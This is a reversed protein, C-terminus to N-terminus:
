AQRSSWINNNIKKWRFYFLFIFRWLKRIRFLVLNKMKTWRVLYYWQQTKTVFVTITVIWLKPIILLELLFLMKMIILSWTKKQSFHMFISFVHIQKNGIFARSLIPPIQCSSLLHPLGDVSNLCLCPIHCVMMWTEQYWIYILCILPLWDSFWYIRHMVIRLKGLTILFFIKISFRHIVNM